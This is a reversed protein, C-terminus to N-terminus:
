SSATEATEATRTETPAPETMASDARERVESILALVARAVPEPAELQATHGVGDLVLLRADPIVAAVRQALSVDVLQDESGWIM